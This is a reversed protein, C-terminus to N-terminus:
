EFRVIKYSLNIKVKTGKGVEAEISITHGLKNLIKKCLYLGIGTSKKDTRGNYGTYGKDCVRPLDEKQIGIGTDEIVLTKEMEKDMYIAIKGKTTYKLANSIVQELVFVLWKEDSIVTCAIPEYELSIKKKIFVTSYKKVAQKVIDDLNQEKIIFDTSDSDLRLYQLVMEVYQEIKFLEMKMADKSEFDESQLLLGMASIPTKIQHAWLTYYDVMNSMDNDNKSTIETKKYYLKKVLNQYGEEIVDVTLPLEEIGFEIKNELEKIKKARQNYRFFDYSVFVLGFFTCLVLAYICAGKPMSYLQAVLVFIGLFFVFAVITKYKSKFYKVMM